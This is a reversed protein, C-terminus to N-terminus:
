KEIQKLSITFAFLKHDIFVSDPMGHKQGTLTEIVKKKHKSAAEIRNLHTSASDTVYYMTEKGAPIAFYQEGHGQLHRGHEFDVQYMILYGLDKRLQRIVPKKDLQDLVHVVRFGNERFEFDFFNLGMENAFVSRISGDPLTKFFLLGSLHKGVVDIQTRYLVTAFEPKLGQLATANGPVSALDKYPSPGCAALLILCGLLWNPGKNLPLYRM